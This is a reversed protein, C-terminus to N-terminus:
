FLELSALRSNPICPVVSSLRQMERFVSELQPWQQQEEIEWSHGWLHFVGGRRATTRLMSHAIDTWNRSRAHLLLNVMNGLALRRACNKMYGIRPILSAQITTPILLLGRTTRPFRTSFLEATRACRFGARRVMDVHRLHFRGKPFCFAECPRGLLDELRRKSEFIETEATESPVGTLDPHHLTHAGIEFRDGLRRIGEDSMTAHPSSFSVYFTGSLAYKDLLDAIRQDLPYGDDWSTTCIASSRRGGKM